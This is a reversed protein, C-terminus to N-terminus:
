LGILIAIINSCGEPKAFGSAGGFFRVSAISLTDGLAPTQVQAHFNGAQTAGFSYSFLTKPSTHATGCPASSGVVRHTGAALQVEEYNLSFTEQLPQAMVIGRANGPGGRLQSSVLIDEFTVKYDPRSQRAAAVATAGDAYLTADACAVQRLQGSTRILRMSLVNSGQIFPRLGAASRTTAFKPAVVEGDIGDFKIFSATRDHPTGCPQRSVLLGYAATRSVGQMAILLRGNQGTANSLLVAIGTVPAGEFVGVAHSEDNEVAVGAPGTGSPATTALAGGPAALLAVLASSAIATSLTRMFRMPSRRMTPAEQQM